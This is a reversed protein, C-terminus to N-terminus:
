IYHRVNCEKNKFFLSNCNFWESGGSFQLLVMEIQSAIFQLSDVNQLCPIAQFFTKTLEICNVACFSPVPPNPIGGQTHSKQDQNNGALIQCLWNWLGMLTIRTIQLSYCMNIIIVLSILCDLHLALCYCLQHPHLTHLKASLRVTTHLCGTVGHHTCCPIRQIVGFPLQSQLQPSSHYTKYRCFKMNAGGRAIGSPGLVSQIRQTLRHLCQVFKPSCM